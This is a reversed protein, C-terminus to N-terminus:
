STKPRWLFFVTTKRSNQANQDNVTLINMSSTDRRTRNSTRETDDTVTPSSTDTTDQNNQRPKETATGRETSCIVHWHYSRLLLWLLGIISKIYLKHLIKLPVYMAPNKKFWNHILRSLSLFLNWAIILDIFVALCGRKKNSTFLKGWRRGHM